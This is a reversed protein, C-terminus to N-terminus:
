IVQCAFVKKNKGVFFFMKMKKQQLRDSALPSFLMSHLVSAENMSHIVSLKKKENVFAACPHQAISCGDLNL